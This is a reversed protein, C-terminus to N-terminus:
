KPLLLCVFPLVPFSPPSPLLLHSSAPTIPLCQNKSLTWALRERYWCYKLYWPSLSRRLLETTPFLVNCFFNVKAIAWSRSFDLPTEHWSGGFNARAMQGHPFPADLSGPLPPCTVAGPKWQSAPTGWLLAPALTHGFAAANTSHAWPSQNSTELIAAGTLNRAYSPPFIIDPMMWSSTTKTNLSFSQSKISASATIEHNKFCSAPSAQNKM